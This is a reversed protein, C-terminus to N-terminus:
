GRWPEPSLYSTPRFSESICFPYLTVSQHGRHLVAMVVKIPAASENCLGELNSKNVNGGLFPLPLAMLVEGLIRAVGELERM